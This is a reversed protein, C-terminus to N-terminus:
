PYPTPLYPYPHSLVPGPRARSPIPIPYPHSLSPIPIPYPHSLSPLVCRHLWGGLCIGSKMDAVVQLSTHMHRTTASATVGSPPPAAARAQMPRAASPVAVIMAIAATRERHCTGSRMAHAGQLSTDFAAGTADPAAHALSAESENTAGTVHLDPPVTPPPPSLGHMGTKMDTDGQLTTKRCCNHQRESPHLTHQFRCTVTGHVAEGPPALPLTTEMSRAPPQSPPAGRGAVEEM